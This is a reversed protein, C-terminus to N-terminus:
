WWDFFAGMIFSGGSADIPVNDYIYTMQLYKYAFYLKMKEGYPSEWDFALGVEATTGMQPAEVTHTGCNSFTCSFSPAMHYSIGGGVRLIWLQLFIQSEFPFRSFMAYGNAADVYGLSVAITNEWHLFPLVEVSAGVAIEQGSRSYISQSGGGEFDVRLM